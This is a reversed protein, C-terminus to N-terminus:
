ATAGSELHPANGDQSLSTAAPREGAAFELRARFGERELDCWREAFREFLLGRRARLHAALAELGRWAGAHPLCASLAPDLDDADAAARARLNLADAERRSEMYALVRPLTVDCDHIEGLLNQLEKARTVATRAYPGLCPEAFLELVYRLRKAAIRLDHAAQVDQPDLARPALEYLEALRTLVIRQANGALPAAPDLGKVRRAKV